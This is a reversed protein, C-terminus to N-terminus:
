EEKTVRLVEEIPIIGDLVKLIGDQFMTIMGQRRTEEKIKTESPEKLIIDSLSDTIELIEFLAIRGHFGTLGCKECGKPKYIYLPQSIEIKSDKPLLEIERSILDIIKKNPEIKEKCNPCLCRVLRQAMAINFSPPILFPDVGMNILRPIVGAANSTHLTSLSLHGTLASHIILSATENDRVEGVMIIDPDQRVIQRLGTAFSYGIDARVQSQYVGEIFYEVPDELTVINVEEKNLFNLISYLTTTKGCGTPGTALILGYPKKLARKLIELNKSRFGLVEFNKLRESPDLIRIAVKEGFVTPFSSVRFDIDQKNIRSSFRGDQPIRNEDIKLAAMIKVRAIVMPYIKLPLFISSHLNGDMRFRVRVQERGPEIHIDSAGGDVAYKLIVGVIKVAPADELPGEFSPRKEESRFDIGEIEEKKELEREKELERLVQSVEKKLTKYQRLSKDLDSLTILFIQYSFNNQRALFKLVEQVRPDEPYPSGIELKDNERALPIIRYSIATQEPIIKLIEPSIKLPVERLPIKLEKSKLEFLFKERVIRKKLIVEEETQGTKKIEQELLIAIKEKIKGQKILSQILNM